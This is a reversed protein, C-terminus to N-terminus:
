RVALLQDGERDQRAEGSGAPEAVRPAEGDDQRAHDRDKREFGREM